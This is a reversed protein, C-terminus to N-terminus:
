SKLFETPIIVNTIDGVLKKPRGRKSLAYTVQVGEVSYVKIKTGDVLTTVLPGNVAISATIQEAQSLPVSDAM